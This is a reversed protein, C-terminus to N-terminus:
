AFAPHLTGVHNLLLQGHQRAVSTQQTTHRGKFYGKQHVLWVSSQTAQIRYGLPGTEALWECEIRRPGKVGKNILFPAESIEGTGPALGRPGQETSNFSTASGAAVVINIKRERGKRSNEEKDKM